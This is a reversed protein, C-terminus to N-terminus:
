RIYENTTRRRHLLTCVLGVATLLGTSPEPATTAEIRVNDFYAFHTTGTASQAIHNLQVSLGHGVRADGTAATTFSTSLDSFSGGPLQAGTISASSTFGDSSRLDIRVLEVTPQASQGVAVTLTYTTSAQITAITGSFLARGEGASGFLQAVGTQGGNATGPLTGNNGGAGSFQTGTPDIVIPSPSGGVRAAAWSTATDSTAGDAVDPSEFSFNPVVLAASFAQSPISALAFACFAIFQSSQNKM